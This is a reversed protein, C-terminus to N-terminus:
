QVAIVQEKTILPINEPNRLFNLLLQYQRMRNKYNEILNIRDETFRLALTQDIKDQINRIEEKIPQIKEQAQASSMMSELQKEFNIKQMRLASATKQDAVTLQNIQNGLTKIENLSQTIIDAIEQKIQLIQQVKRVIRPDQVLDTIKGNLTYYLFTDDAQADKFFQQAYQDLQDNLSALQQEIPSIGLSNKTQDLKQNQSTLQENLTPVGVAENQLREIEKQLADIASKIGGILIAAPRYTAARANNNNCGILVLLSFMAIKNLKVM